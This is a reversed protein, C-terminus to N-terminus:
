GEVRKLCSINVPDVHLNSATPLLDGARFSVCGRVLIKHFKSVFSCARRYGVVRLASLLILNYAPSRTMSTALVSLCACALITSRLSVQVERRTSSRRGDRHVRFVCTRMARTFTATTFLISSDIGCGCRQQLRRRTHACLRLSLHIAGFTARLLPREPCWTAFDARCFIACPQLAPLATQKTFTHAHTLGFRRSRLSGRSSDDVVCFIEIGADAPMLRICEATSSM